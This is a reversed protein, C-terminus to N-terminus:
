NKKKRIIIEYMICIMTNRRTRYNSIPDIAHVVAIYRDFSMFVLLYISM